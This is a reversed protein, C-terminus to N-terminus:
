KWKTRVLVVPMAIWEASIMKATAFKWIDDETKKAEKEIILKPRLM